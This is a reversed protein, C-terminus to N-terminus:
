SKILFLTKEKPPDAISKQTSLMRKPSASGGGSFIASANNPTFSQQRQFTIGSGVISTRPINSRSPLVQLLNDSIFSQPKSNSSVANNPTNPPLLKAISPPLTLLSQPTMTLRRPSLDKPSFIQFPLKNIISARAMDTNSPNEQSLSPAPPPQVAILNPEFGLRLPNRRVRKLAVRKRVRKTSTQKPEEPDPEAKKEAAKRKALIDEFDYRMPHKVSSSLHHTKDTSDQCIFKMRRQSNAAKRVFFEQKASNKNEKQMNKRWEFFINSAHTVFLNENSTNTTVKRPLPAKTSDPGAMDLFPRYEEQTETHPVLISEIRSMRNSTQLYSRRESSVPRSTNPSQLASVTAQQSAKESSNGINLARGRSILKLTDQANKITSVSSTRGKITFKNANLLAKRFMSFEVSLSEQKGVRSEIKDLLEKEKKEYEQELNSVASDNLIESENNQLDSILPQAKLRDPSLLFNIGESLPNNEEVTTIKQLPTMISKLLEHERIRKQRELMDFINICSQPRPRHKPGLSLKTFTVENGKPNLRRQKIQEEMIQRKTKQQSKILFIIMCYQPDPFYKFERFEMSRRLEMLTLCSVEKTRKDYAALIAGSDLAEKLAESHRLWLNSKLNENSSFGFIGPAYDFLQTLYSDLLTSIDPYRCQHLLLAIFVAALKRVKTSEHSLLEFPLKELSKVLLSEPYTTDLRGNALYYNLEIRLKKKLLQAEILKYGM